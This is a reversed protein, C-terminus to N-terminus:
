EEEPFLEIVERYEPIQQTSIILFDEGDYWDWKGYLGGSQRNLEELIFEQLDEFEPGEDGAFNFNMIPEVDFPKGLAEVAAKVDEIAGERDEYGRFGYFNVMAVQPYRSEIYSYKKYPDWKKM